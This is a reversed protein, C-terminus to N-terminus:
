NPRKSETLSRQFVREFHKLLLQTVVQQNISLNLLAEMSTMTESPLGCPQISEFHSLDTAINLALGHYTVWQKVAVGISAIKKEGVWVGTWGPNRTGELGFEALTLIIVEELNRLYQHLDREDPQLKLIPYVVLQGPGHYTVSGGREVSFLSFGAKKLHKDETGRGLTITSAHEGVLLTDPIDDAIRQAVWQKQRQYVSEYSQELTFWEVQCASTTLTSSM